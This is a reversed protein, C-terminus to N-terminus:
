REDLAARLAAPMAILTQPACRQLAGGLPVTLGELEANRSLRAVVETAALWPAALNRLAVEFVELATRDGARLDANM